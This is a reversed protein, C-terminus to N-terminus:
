ATQIGRYPMLDNFFAQSRQLTMSKAKTFFSGGIKWYYDRVLVSDTCM